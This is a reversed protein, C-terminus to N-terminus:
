KKFSMAKRGLNHIRDLVRDDKETPTIAVVTTVIGYLLPLWIVPNGINEFLCGWDIACVKQIETIGSELSM